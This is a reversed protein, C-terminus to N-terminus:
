EITQSMSRMTGLAGIVAALPTKLDHSISTLLASRLRDTEATRKSPGSRRGLSCTRHCACGSGDLCRAAPASRPEAAPWAQRMWEWIESQAAAPTCPFSSASREPFLESGRGAPKITRGRGNPPPSIRRISRTKRRIAPSSRSRDMRPFLLVVRVNLMLATQYATAWLVDDLTWSGCTKPQIRLAFGYQPGAGM